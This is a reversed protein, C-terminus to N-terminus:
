TRRNNRTKIVMNRNNIVDLYRHQGMRSIIYFSRDVYLGFRPNLQGKTPEGKWEDKYVIDFQQNIRGHKNWVIVNRNEADVGGHVDMVKGRENTLFAGKL